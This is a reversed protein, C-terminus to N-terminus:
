IFMYKIYVRIANCFTAFIIIKIIISPYDNGVDETLTQHDEM